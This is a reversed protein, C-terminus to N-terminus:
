SNRILFIQGLVKRIRDWTMSSRRCTAREVVMKVAAREFRCVVATGTKKLKKYAQYVQEELFFSAVSNKDQLLEWLMRITEEAM